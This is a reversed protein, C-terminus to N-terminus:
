LAALNKRAEVRGQGLFRHSAILFGIPDNGGGVNGQTIEVLYEAVRMEDPSYPTAEFDRGTQPMEIAKLMEPTIGPDAEAEMKGLLGDIVAELERGRQDSDKVREEAYWGMALFIEKPLAIFQKGNRCNSATAAVNLPATPYSAEIALALIERLRAESHTM